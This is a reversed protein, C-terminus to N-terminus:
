RQGLEGQKREEKCEWPLLEAGGEVEVKAILLGIWAVTAKLVGLRERKAPSAWVGGEMASEEVMLVSSGEELKSRSDRQHSGSSRM